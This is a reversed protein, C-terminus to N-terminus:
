YTKCLNVAICSQTKVSWFDTYFVSITEGISRKMFDIDSTTYALNVVGMNILQKAISHSDRRNLVDRARFTVMKIDHKKVQNIVDDSRIDVNLAVNNVGLEHAKDYDDLNFVEVLLRERFPFKDVLLDLDQIKDTVLIINKNKKFIEVIEDIGLYTVSSNNSILKFQSYSLPKKSFEFFLDNKNTRNKYKFEQWNHVAVLVGDSTKEIDLEIMKKGDKISFEVAELSNTYVFGKQNESIIGGGAHAIVSFEDGFKANKMKTMLKTEILDRDLKKDCGNLLLISLIVLLLKKITM